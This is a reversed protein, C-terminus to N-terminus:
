TGIAGKKIKNRAMYLSVDVCRERAHSHGLLVVKLLNQGSAMNLSKAVWIINEM